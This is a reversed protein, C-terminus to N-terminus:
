PQFELKDVHWGQQWKSLTYILPASQYTEDPKFVGSANRALCNRAREANGTAAEPGTYQVTFVVEAKVEEPTWRWNNITTAYYRFAPLCGNAQLRGLYHEKIALLVPYELNPDAAAPRVLGLGMTAALLLVAAALFRPM